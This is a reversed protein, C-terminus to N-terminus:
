LAFKRIFCQAAKPLNRNKKCYFHIKRQAFPSNIRYYYLRPDPITNKILTDSIFAIGLGYSCLNYATLQQDLELKINPRFGSEKFMENAKIRTDNNLKLLLFPENIFASLNSKKQSGYNDSIFDEAVLLSDSLEQNIKYTRPVALIIEENRYLYTEFDTTTIDSNDMVIDLDNNQVEKMLQTSTSEHIEIDIGPYISSFTNILPPLVYSTFLTTGGISINGSLCNDLNSLSESFHNEIEMIQRIAEIYRRGAETLVVPNTSRDFIPTGLKNEAKKVMISLSPQSIYLKAAAQTFSGQKYVEYVYKMEHFM